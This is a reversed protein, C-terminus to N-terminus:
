VKAANYAVVRGHFVADDEQHLGFHGARNPIGMLGDSEILAIEGIHDGYRSAADVRIALRKYKARAADLDTFFSLAFGDCPEDVRPGDKIAAPIFDDGTAANHLFRFGIRSRREFKGPHPCPEPCGGLHEAYKLAMTLLYDTEGGITLLDNKCGSTLAGQNRLDMTADDSALIAKTSVGLGLGPRGVM